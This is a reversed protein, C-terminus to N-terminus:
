VLDPLQGDGWDKHIHLTEKQIRMFHDYAKKLETLDRLDAIRYGFSIVLVDIRNPTGTDVHHYSDFDSLVNDPHHREASTLLPSYGILRQVEIDGAHETGLRANDIRLFPKECRLKLHRLPDIPSGRSETSTNSYYQINSYFWQLYRIATWNENLMPTVFSQITELYAKVPDHGPPHDLSLKHEGKEFKYVLNFIVRRGVEDILKARNDGLMSTLSLVFRDIPWQVDPLKGPAPVEREYGLETVLEFLSLNSRLSNPELASQPRAPALNFSQQQMISERDNYYFKLKRAFDSVNKISAFDKRLSNIVKDVQSESEDNKGFIKQKFRNLWSDNSDNPELQIESIVSVVHDLGKETYLDKLKQQLEKYFKEINKNTLEEQLWRNISDQINKVSAKVDSNQEQLIHEQLIRLAIMEVHAQGPRVPLVLSATSFGAVALAFKSQQESALDNLNERKSAVERGIPTITDLYIFQAIMQKVEDISSLGENGNDRDVLFVTDFPRRVRTVQKAGNSTQYAYDPFIAEFQQQGSLYYNLEKLAAYANGQIRLRQIQSAIEQLFVSPMVFVGCIEGDDGLTSRVRFAVDLLLGSGTGGCLSSVIYVRVQGTRETRIGQKEVQEKEAIQRIKNLKNDLRHAFQGWRAYLSLRGVLRRQRAGRFISGTVVQGNPWWDKIHPHQDLHDLVKGANFDGIYAIERDLIREEGPMNQPMETDIVLFELVSPMPQMAQRIRHKLQRVIDVGTGGLGIVLTPKIFLSSPIYVQIPQSTTTM